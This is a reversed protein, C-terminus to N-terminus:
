LTSHNGWLLVIVLFALAVCVMALSSRSVIRREGKERGSREAEAEKRALLWAGFLLLAAFLKLATRVSFHLEEM